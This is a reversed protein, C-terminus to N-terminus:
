NVKGLKRVDFKHVKEDILCGVIVVVITCTKDKLPNNDPPKYPKMNVSVKVQKRSCSSSSHALSILASTTPYTLTM